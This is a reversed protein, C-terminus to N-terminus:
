TGLTVGFHDLLSGFGGDYVWLLELTVWFYGLAAGLHAWLPELKVEYGLKSGLFTRIGLWLAGRSTEFSDNPLEKM